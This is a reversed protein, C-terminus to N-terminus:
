EYLTHNFFLKEFDNKLYEKLQPKSNVVSKEFPKESSATFEATTNFNSAVLWSELTKTLNYVDKSDAKRLISIITM